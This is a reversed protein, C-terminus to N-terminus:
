RNNEKKNKNKVANEIADDWIISSSTISYNNLFIELCKQRRALWSDQNEYFASNIAEIFDDNSYCEFSKILGTDIYGIFAHPTGVVPIGYSLAEAVKVKMGAGSFVPAIFLDSDLFINSMDKPSVILTVNPISSVRELLSERPNSGAITLNVSITLKELVNEIFWIIGKVNDEYWLSGTILLRLPKRKEEIRIINKEKISVPNITIREKKIENYLECIRQKDNSTLALICDARKLIKLEQKYALKSILYKEFSRNNNYDNSAYDFEVNHVKVVLPKKNLRDLVYDLKTFDLIVADYDNFDIKLRKWDLYRSNTIGRFLYILRLIINTNAKLFYVDNYLERIGDQEIQPGIYDITHGNEKLSLVTQLVGLGGGSNEAPAQPTIQILKM